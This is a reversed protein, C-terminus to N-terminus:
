NFKKKLKDILSPRFFVKEIKTDYSDLTDKSSTGKASELNIEMVIRYASALNQDKKGLEDIIKEGTKIANKCNIKCPFFERTFFAASNASKSKSLAEVIKTEQNKVLTREKSFKDICCEPYGLINGIKRTVAPDLGSILGKNGMITIAGITTYIKQDKFFFVYPLVTNGLPVFCLGTFIGYQKWIKRAIFKLKDIDPMSIEDLFCCAVKRADVYVPMLVGIYIHPSIGLRKFGKMEIDFFSDIDRPKSKAVSMLDLNQPGIIALIQQEKSIKDAM